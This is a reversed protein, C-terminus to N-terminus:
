KKKTYTNQKGFRAGKDKGGGREAPTKGKNDRRSRPVKQSKKSKLTEQPNKQKALQKKVLSEVLKEIQQNDQTPNLNHMLTDADAQVAATQARKLEKAVADLRMKTEYENHVRHRTTQLHATISQTESLREGQSAQPFAAEYIQGLQAIVGNFSTNFSDELAEIMFTLKQGELVAMEKKFNTKLLSFSKTLNQQYVPNIHTPIQFINKIEFAPWLGSPNNIRENAKEYRMKLGYKQATLKKVSTETELLVRTKAQEYQEISSTM